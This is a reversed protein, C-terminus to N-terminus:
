DEGAEYINQLVCRARVACQVKRRGKLGSCGSAPYGTTSANVRLSHHCNCKLKGELAV